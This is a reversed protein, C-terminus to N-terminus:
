PASCRRWAARARSRPDADPALIRCLAPPRRSHRHRPRRRGSWIPWPYSDDVAAAVAIADNGQGSQGPSRCGETRRTESGARFESTKSESARESSKSGISRPESSACGGRGSASAAAPKARGAHGGFERRDLRVDASSATGGAPVARQHRGRLRGRIRAHGCGHGKPQAAPRAVCSRARAEVAAAKAGRRRRPEEGDAINKRPM